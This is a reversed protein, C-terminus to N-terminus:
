FEMQFYCSGNRADAGNSTSYVSLGIYDGAAVTVTNATNSCTRYLITGGLNYCSLGTFSENKVVTFAMTADSGQSQHYGCALNKLTAARFIPIWTQIGTTALTNIASGPYYQRPPISIYFYDTTDASIAQFKQASSASFQKVDIGILIPDTPLAGGEVWTLTGGAGTTAYREAPIAVGASSFYVTNAFTNQGSFTQTASLIADGGGVAPTTWSLTAIGNTKLVQNASGDAAPWSYDVGNVGVQTARLRAGSKLTMDGNTGSITGLSSNDSPRKFDFATEGYCFAAVLSLCVGIPFIIALKKM